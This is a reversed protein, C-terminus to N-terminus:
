DQRLNRDRSIMETMHINKNSPSRAMQGLGMEDWAKTSLSGSWSHKRQIGALRTIKRGEVLDNQTKQRTYSKLAAAIAPYKAVETINPRNDPHQVLLTKVLLRISAPFEKPLPEYGM